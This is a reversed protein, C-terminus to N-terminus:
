GTGGMYLGEVAINAQWIGLRRTLRLAAPAPLVLAISLPVVLVLFLSLLLTMSPKIVLFYFLAQYSTADTFMAYANRYFSTEKVAAGAPVGTHLVGQAPSAM